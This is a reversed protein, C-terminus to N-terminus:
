ITLKIHQIKLKINIPEFIDLEACDAKLFKVLVFVQLYALKLTRAPVNEMILAYHPPNKFLLGARQATLNNNSM